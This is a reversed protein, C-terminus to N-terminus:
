FPDARFDLLRPSECEQQRNSCYFSPPLLITTFSLGPAHIKEGGPLLAQRCIAHTMGRAQMAIPWVYIPAKCLTIQRCQSCHEHMVCNRLQPNLTLTNALPQSSVHYGLCSISHFFRQCVDHCAFHDARRAGSRPCVEDPTCPSYLFKRPHSPTSTSVSQLRSVRAFDVM